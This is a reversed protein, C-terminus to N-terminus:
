DRPIAGFDVGCALMSADGRLSAAAGSARINEYLLDQFEAHSQKFGATNVNALNNAIVDINLQQAQMGSAASYLARIM